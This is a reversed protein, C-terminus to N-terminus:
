PGCMPPPPQPADPAEEALADRYWPPPDAPPGPPPFHDAADPALDLTYGHGLGSPFELDLDPRRDFGMRDYLRQASTMFDMTFIGIRHCDAAVAADLCAQVLSHGIGRGRVSPSVALLRFGGDNTPPEVREHLRSGDLALVVVGVVTETADDVAVFVETADDVWMAPTSAYVHYSPSNTAFVDYAEALIAGVAAHDADTIPRVHHRDSM